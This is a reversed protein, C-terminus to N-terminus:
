GAKDNEWSMGVDFYNYNIIRYATLSLLIINLTFSYLIIIFKTAFIKLNEYRSLKENFDIFYNQLNGESLFIILWVVLPVM